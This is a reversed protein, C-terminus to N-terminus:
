PFVTENLKISAGEEAGTGPCLPGVPNEAAAVWLEDVPVDQTGFHVKILKM